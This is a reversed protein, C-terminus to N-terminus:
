KRKKVTISYEENLLKEINNYGGEFLEWKFVVNGKKDFFEYGLCKFCFQGYKSLMLLVADPALANTIRDYNIKNKM